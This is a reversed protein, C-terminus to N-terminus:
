PPPAFAPAAPPAFAPAPTPGGFASGAAPLDFTSGGSPGLIANLDKGAMESRTTPAHTFRELAANMDRALGGIKGGYRSDDVKQLDGAALKQLERRLKGLPVDVEIRQLILGVAIMAFTLLTLPVWPFTGWKLDSSSVNALLAGLDSKAPQVGILAYYAQQEGAQGPFPAAVVLLKDQGASLVLAPTRQLTEMDSIHQAVMDPLADLEGPNRSTAIVKGRLLLAVDVDLNKKLREVLAPGTEAAVYIAGVIRDKNKSLVPAGAVRQLKGGAGLVDDSLYGRLADAVVEVGTIYDGYEKDNDGGVRAIVRGKVDTAVIEDIGSSALDPILTRFRDQITRHIVTYEGSGRSAADLSESLIADRGLKSVRDIWKHADVKFMQEAAYQARDLRQGELTALKQVAPRPAVLAFTGAVASVLAILIFWIKSLFM